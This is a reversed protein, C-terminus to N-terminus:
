LELLKALIRQFVEKEDNATKDSNILHELCPRAGKYSTIAQAFHGDKYNHAPHSSCAQSLIELVEQEFQSAPDM